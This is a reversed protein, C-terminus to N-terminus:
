LSLFVIVVEICLVASCQIFLINLIRLLIHDFLNASVVLLISSVLIPHAPRAIRRLIINQCRWVCKGASHLLLIHGGAAPYPAQLCSSERKMSRIGSASLASSSESGSFDKFRSFISEWHSCAFDSIPAPWRLVM